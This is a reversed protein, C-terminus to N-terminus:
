MAQAWSWSINQARVFGLTLGGYSVLTNSCYIDISFYKESKAIRSYQRGLSATATFFLDLVQNRQVPHHM